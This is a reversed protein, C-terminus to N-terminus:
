EPASWLFYWLEAPRQAPFEGPVPSNGAFLALLASFTEMQHRWWPVVTSSWGTHTLYKGAVSRRTGELQVSAHMKLRRNEWCIHIYIMKLLQWLHKMFPNSIMNPPKAIMIIIFYNGWNSCLFRIKIRYIFLVVFFFSCLFLAALFRFLSGFKRLKEAHWCLHIVSYLM